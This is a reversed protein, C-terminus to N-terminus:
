DVYVFENMNFMVLCFRELPQKALFELAQQKENDRPARGLAIHWAADVWKSPNEGHERKLRSAFKGAQENMFENNLLALAQPAVTTVNRRECSVSTDPMDFAEFMPMRFSRKVYLYVGRRTHEAPDSNVPWQSVDKLGAKEEDSLPPIVPPGGIKLNLTGAASVVADRLMEAELRRRNMRWFYRNDGDIKANAPDFASSMQYTNSLMILRHMAKLSWGREVFEVALWDLLEPHTPPDGQRGFDNPTGIIGRVFHGQWLRNVMVRAVLPHDPRTLWLAFAKRRQPVFPRESPERIVEGNALIAPFAPGVKEGKKKHDGRELIHVDPVIDAHGLVAATPYRAPVKLYAEGIKEILRQRQQKEDETYEAAHEKEGIGRVAAELDIALEKKERTRKEEPIEYAAVVEPPYKAKLRTVIRQKAVAAIRQVASRLDDVAMQKPYAQRYDFVSM